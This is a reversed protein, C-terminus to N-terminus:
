SLFERRSVLFCGTLVELLDELAFLSRGRDELPKEESNLREREFELALSASKWDASALWSRVSVLGGDRGRVKGSLNPVAMVRSSAELFPVESFRDVLWCFCFGLFEVFEICRRNAKCEAALDSSRRSLQFIASAHFVFFSSFTGFGSIGSCVCPLTLPKGL